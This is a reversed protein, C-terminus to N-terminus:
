CDCGPRNLREAVDLIEAVTGAMETKNRLVNSGRKLRIALDYPAPWGDPPQQHAQRWFLKSRDWFGVRDLFRVGFYFGDLDDEPKKFGDGEVSKTLCWDLM